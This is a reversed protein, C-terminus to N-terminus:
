RGAWNPLISHRVGGVDIVADGDFPDAVDGQDADVIRWDVGGSLGDALTQLLGDFMQVGLGGGADNRDVGCPAGEHCAGIDAFEALGEHGGRQGIHEVDDFGRGDRHDADHVAGGKAAPQFKAEGGMGADADCPQADAQGFDQQAKQGASAARLAHRAQGTDRERQVHDQRATLNRGFFCKLGPDDVPQFCAIGAIHRQFGRLLHDVARQFGTAGVLDRGDGILDRQVLGGGMQPFGLAVEERRM